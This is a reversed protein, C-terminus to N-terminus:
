YSRTEVVRLMCLAHSLRASAAHLEIGSFDASVLAPLLPLLVEESETEPADEGMGSEFAFLRISLEFLEVAEGPM